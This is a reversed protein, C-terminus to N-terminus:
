GSSLVQNLNKSIQVFALKRKVKPLEELTKSVDGLPSQFATIEKHTDFVTSPSIPIWFIKAGREKAATLLNPLEYEQIFASNLFDQSVLLVAARASDLAKRISKEWDDGAKIQSDDWFSILGEDELVTLFEKLFMVWRKDKHSYSIFVTKRPRLPAAFHTFCLVDGQIQYTIEIPPDPHRYVRTDGKTTTRADFASPDEALEWILGTLTKQVDLPFAERAKQAEKSQRIAYETFHTSM